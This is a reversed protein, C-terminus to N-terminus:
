YQPTQWLAVCLVVPIVDPRCEFVQCKIHLMKCPAYSYLGTWLYLQGTVQQVLPLLCQETEQQGTFFLMYEIETLLCCPLPTPLLYHHWAIVVVHHVCIWKQCKIDFMFIHPQRTLAFTPFSLILNNHHWCCMGESFIWANMIHIDVKKLVTNNIEQTMAETNGRSYSSHPPSDWHKELGNQVFYALIAVEYTHRAIFM